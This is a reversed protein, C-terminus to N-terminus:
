LLFVTVSRWFALFASGPWVSASQRPSSIRVSSRRPTAGMSDKRESPRSREPKQAASRTTPLRGGQEKQFRAHAFEKGLNEGFARQHEKSLGSKGTSVARERGGDDVPLPGAGARHFFGDPVGIVRLGTVREDTFFETLHGKAFFRLVCPAGAKPPHGQTQIPTM